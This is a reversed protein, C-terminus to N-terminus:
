SGAELARKLQALTSQITERNRAPRDNVGTVLPAFTRILVGRRDEVSETVRTGGSGDPAFQYKWLSVPLSFTSRVEWSIERGRDASVVTCSTSWHHRGNKNHGTFRAGPKAETAGGLWTAGANEPSWEGMRTVDAIAAYVAEPPAAITTAGEVVHGMAHRM